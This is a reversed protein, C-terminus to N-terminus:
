KVENVQVDIVELKSKAIDTANVQGAELMLRQQRSLELTSARLAAIASDEKMGVQLEVKQVEPPKLHTLLSNAADCRVKASVDGDMMLAAQVNLAKQFLDQNLVYTPIMSQAMIANVLKTKNYATVYSAVDKQSVGQTAWRQIKDPFTKSYADINTNGMLKHSVYRVANLYEQITYKGDNLVHTYSVLNDRYAEFLDPDALTKNIQDLLEQNVAKKMKAPLADRFQDQTMPLM